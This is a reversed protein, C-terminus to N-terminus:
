DRDAPRRRAIELDGHLDGLQMGALLDVADGAIGTEAGGLRDLDAPDAQVIVEGARQEQGIAFEHLGRAFHAVIEFQEDSRKPALRSCTQWRSEVSCRGPSFPM